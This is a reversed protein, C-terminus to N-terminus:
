SSMYVDLLPKYKVFETYKEKLIPQMLFEFCKLIGDFDESPVYYTHGDIEKVTSSTFLDLTFKPSIVETYLDFKLDLKGDVMYDLQIHNNSICNEELDLMYHLDKVIYGAPDCLIDVDSSSKYNPFDPSMRLIAIYDINQFIDSLNIKNSFTQSM